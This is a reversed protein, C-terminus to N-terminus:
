FCKNLCKDCRSTVKKCRSSLCIILAVSKIPTMQGYENISINSNKVYNYIYNQNKVEFDKDGPYIENSINLFNNKEKLYKKIEDGVYDLAVIGVKDLVMGRMMDNNTTCYSIKDEIQHGITYLVVYAKKSEGFREKIYEGHFDHVKM